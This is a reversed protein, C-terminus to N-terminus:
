DEDVEDVEDDSDDNIKIYVRWNFFKQRSEDPVTTKIKIGYSKL